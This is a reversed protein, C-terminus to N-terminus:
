LWMNPVWIGGILPELAELKWMHYQFNPLPSSFIENSPMQSPRSSICSTVHWLVNKLLSDFKNALNPSRWTSNYARLSVMTRLLPKAWRGEEQSTLWAVESERCKTSCPNLEQCLNVITYFADHPGDWQFGWLLGVVDFIANSLILSTKRELSHNKGVNLSSVLNGGGWPNERILDNYKFCGNVGGCRLIMM